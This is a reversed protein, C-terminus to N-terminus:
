MGYILQIGNKTLITRHIDVMPHQCDCVYPFIEIKVNVQAWWGQFYLLILGPPFNTWHYLTRGRIRLDHTGIGAGGLNSKMHKVFWVIPVLVPEIMWFAFM